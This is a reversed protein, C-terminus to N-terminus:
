KILTKFSLSLMLLSLNDSLLISPNTMLHGVNRILLLSRGHLKLGKGEKSIYSRNPNLKREFTKGEKEFQTILNGKMLGLWNRYCKVKDDADVAAVSDENDIITSVASEVIINSISAKDLKATANPYTYWDYPTEDDEMDQNELAGDPPPETAYVPYLEVM